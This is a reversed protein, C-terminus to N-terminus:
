ITFHQLLTVLDTPPPLRYVVWCARATSPSTAPHDMSGQSLLAPATSAESVKVLQATGVLAEPQVLEMQCRGHDLV